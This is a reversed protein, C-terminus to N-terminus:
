ASLKIMHSNDFHLLPAAAAAVPPQNGARGASALNRQLGTSFITPGHRAPNPILWAETPVPSLHFPALSLSITPGTWLFAGIGRGVEM